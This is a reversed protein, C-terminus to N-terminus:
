VRSQRCGCFIIIVLNWPQVHLTFMYTTTPIHNRYKITACPIYVYLQNCPYCVHIMPPLTNCMPPWVEDYLLWVILFYLKLFENINTLLKNKDLCLINKFKIIRIVLQEGLYIIPKQKHLKTMWSEKHHIRWCRWM